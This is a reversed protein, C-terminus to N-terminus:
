LHLVAGPDTGTNGIIIEVLTNLLGESHFSTGGTGGHERTEPIEPRKLYTKPPGGERSNEGTELSSQQRFDTSSQKPITPVPKPQQLGSM